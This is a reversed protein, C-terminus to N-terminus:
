VMQESPQVQLSSLSLVLRLLPFSGLFVMEKEEKKGGNRDM